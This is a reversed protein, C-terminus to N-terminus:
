WDDYSGSDDSDDPDQVPRALLFGAAAWGGALAFSLL